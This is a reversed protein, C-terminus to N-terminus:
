HLLEKSEKAEKGAGVGRTQKIAGGYRVRRGEVNSDVNIVHAVETQAIRHFEPKFSGQLGMKTHIKHTLNLEKQSGVVVPGTIRLAMDRDVEGLSTKNVVKKVGMLELGAIRCQRGVPRAEGNVGERVGRNKIRGDNGRVLGEHAGEVPQRDGGTGVNRANDTKQGGVEV